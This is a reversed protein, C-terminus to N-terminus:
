SDFANKVSQYDWYLQGSQWKIMPVHTGKWRVAEPCKSRNVITSKYLVIIKLGDRVAKECEFDIYSRTDVIHGKTHDGVILVFTKSADLRDALSKKISCNLSTDRAQKLDHADSFSLGYKSNDNWYHLADVADKDHDWDAAIYTRTRYYM